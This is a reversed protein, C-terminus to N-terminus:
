LGITQRDRWAKGGRQGHTGASAGSTTVPCETVCLSSWPACAAVNLSCAHWRRLLIQRWPWFCSSERVGRPLRAEGRGRGEGEEGAPRREGGPTVAAQAEKYNEAFYQPAGHEEDQERKAEEGGEERRGRERRREFGGGERLRVRGGHRLKGVAARPVVGAGRGAGRGAGSSGRSGRESPDCSRKRLRGCAAPLADRRTRGRRGPPTRAPFPAGRAPARPVPPDRHVGGRGNGERAGGHRDAERTLTGLAPKLGPQLWNGM